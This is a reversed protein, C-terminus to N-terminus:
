STGNKFRSHHGTKHHHLPQRPTYADRFYAALLDLTDAPNLIQPRRLVDKDLQEIFQSVSRDGAHGERPGDRHKCRRNREDRIRARVVAEIGTDDKRRETQEIHSNTWIM